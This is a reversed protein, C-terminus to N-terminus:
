YGGAATLKKEYAIIDEAKLGLQRAVDDIYPNDAFELEDGGMIEHREPEKVGEVQLRRGIPITAEMEDLEAQLSELGKPESAIRRLRAERKDPQVEKNGLSDVVHRHGLKGVRYAETLVADVRIKVAGATAV